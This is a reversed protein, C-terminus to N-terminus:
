LQASARKWTGFTIRECTLQESIDYCFIRITSSVHDLEGPLAVSGAIIALGGDHRTRRASPTVDVNLFPLSSMAFFRDLRADFVEARLLLRLPRARAAGVCRLACGFHM